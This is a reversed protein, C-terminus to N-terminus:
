GKKRTGRGEDWKEGEGREMGMDIEMDRGM